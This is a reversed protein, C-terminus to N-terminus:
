GQESPPMRDLAVPIELLASFGEGPASAFTLGWGEQEAVQILLSLGLGQGERLFGEKGAERIRQFPKGLAKLQHPALGEGEDSVLIRLRRKHRRTEVTVRGRGHGLANEVLTLLASRLSPLPARGIAPALDLRLERGEMEFAPRLDEVAERIWAPNAEGLPGSPGGGRIVRLGSEIITTLHDVEEGLRLLEEDAREPSLRGLRLSDCRFKLIALPTKLSHTMSAMRDADLMARRRSRHRLWLGLLMTGGLAASVGSAMWYHRRLQRRFTAQQTDFGAGGLNWGDGFANTKATSVLPLTSLRGPDVQLHPEAGWPQLGLDRRDIDQERILGMRLAHNPALALNLAQEVEASGLHWRKIVLWRDSLLVVTATRGFDPDHDKPPNWEFRRAVEAHACWGLYQQALVPDTPPVLRDGRRFWLRRGEFRDLLAVVLPQDALFRRVDLEDGTQVAQLVPLSKWHREVAEFDVWHAEMYTLVGTNYQELRYYRPLFILLVATALGALVLLVIGSQQQLTQWRSPGLSPHLIRFRSARHRYM